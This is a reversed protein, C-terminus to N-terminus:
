QRIERIERVREASGLRAGLLKRRGTSTRPRAPATISSGERWCVTYAAVRAAGCRRGAFVNRCETARLQEGGRNATCVMRHAEVKYYRLSRMSVSRMECM